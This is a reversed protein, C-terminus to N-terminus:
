YGFDRIKKQYKPRDPISYIYTGALIFTASAIGTGKTMGDSRSDTRTIQVSTAVGALFFGTFIMMQGAHVFNQSREEQYSLKYRHDVQAKSVFVLLVLCFTFLAKM